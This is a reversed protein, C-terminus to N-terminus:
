STGRSSSTSHAGTGNEDDKLERQLQRVERLKRRHAPREEEQVLGHYLRRAERLDRLANDVHDGAALWCRARRFLADPLRLRAEYSAEGEDEDDELLRRCVVISHGYEDAALLPHGVAELAEGREQFLHARIAEFRLAEDEDELGLADAGIQDLDGAAGSIVDLAERPRGLASLSHAYNIRALARDGLLAPLDEASGAGNGEPGKTEAGAGEVGSFLGVCRELIPLADAHRGVENLLSGMAGLVSALAAPADEDILQRLELAQKYCALAADPEDLHDILVEAGLVRLNVVQEILGNAAEGPQRLAAGLLRATDRELHDIAGKPDGANVHAIARFAFVEAFHLLAEPDTRGATARASQDLERRAARWMDQAALAHGYAKLALPYVDLVFPHDPPWEGLDETAWRYCRRAERPSGLQMWADGLQLYARVRELRDQQAGTDRLLGELLEVRAALLTQAEEPEAHTALLEQVSAVLRLSRPPLWPFEDLLDLARQALSSQEEASRTRRAQALLAEALGHCLNLDRPHITANLRDILRAGAEYAASVDDALEHVAAEQALVWVPLPGEWGERLARLADGRRESNALIEARTSRILDREVEPLEQGAGLAAEAAAELLALGEEPDTQALAVALARRARLAFLWGRPTALRDALEGARELAPGAGDQEGILLLHGLQIWLEVELEAEEGSLPKEGSALISLAEQLDDLAEEFGEGDRRHFHVRRALAKLRLLRAQRGQLRDLLELLEGLQLQAEHDEGQALLAEVRDLYLHALEPRPGRREARAIAREISRLNVPERQPKPVFM